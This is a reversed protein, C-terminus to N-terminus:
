ILVEIFCALYCSANIGKFTTPEGDEISVTYSTEGLMEWNNSEFLKMAEYPNCDEANFHPAFKFAGKETNLTIEKIEM